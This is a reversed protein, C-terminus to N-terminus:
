GNSSGYALGAVFTARLGEALTLQPQWGVDATIKAISLACSVDSYPWLVDKSVVSSPAECASAMLEAYRAMTVAAPGAVNYVVQRRRGCTEVCALIADVVDQVHVHHLLARPRAIRPAVGSLLANWLAAERGVTDGPGYVYALRLVTVAFRRHDTLVAAEAAAKREGYAGWPTPAGTMHTEDIISPMPEQYVAMSSIWIVHPIRSGIARLLVSAAAADYCSADVAIDFSRGRLASMVSAPDNRDCVIQETGPVRRTGRNLVAVANGSKLAAVAVRRGIFGSGGVILYRLAV